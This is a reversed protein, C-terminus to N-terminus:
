GAICYDGGDWRSKSRKGEGKGVKVFRWCYLERVYVTGYREVWRELWQWLMMGRGKEDYAM